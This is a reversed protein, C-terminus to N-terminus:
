PAPAQLYGSQSLDACLNSPASDGVVVYSPQTSASGAVDSCQIGQAAMGGPVTGDHAVESLDNIIFQDCASQSQDSGAQVGVNGYGDTGYCWYTTAVQGSSSSASGASTSGCGALLLITTIALVGRKTGIKM